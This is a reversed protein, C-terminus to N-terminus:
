QQKITDETIEKEKLYNIPTRGDKRRDRQRKRLETERQRQRQRKRGLEKRRKEVRGPHCVDKREIREVSAM